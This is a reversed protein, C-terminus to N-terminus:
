EQYSSFDYVFDFVNMTMGDKGKREFEESCNLLITNGLRRGETGMSQERNLFLISGNLYFSFHIDIVKFLCRDRYLM